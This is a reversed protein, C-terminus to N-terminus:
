PTKVASAAKTETPSIPKNNAAPRKVVPPHSHEQQMQIQDFSSKMRNLSAQVDAVEAHMQEWPASGVMEKRFSQFNQALTELRQTFHALDENRFHEIETLVRSQRSRIEQDMTQVKLQLTEIQQPLVRHDASMTAMQQELDSLRNWLDGTCGALGMMVTAVIFLNVWQRLRYAARMRDERSLFLDSFRIEEIGITYGIAHLKSWYLGVQEPLIGVPRRGGHSPFPAARSAVLL